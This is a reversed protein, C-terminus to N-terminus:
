SSINSSSVRSVSESVISLDFSNALVSRFDDGNGYNQYFMRADDISAFPKSMTEQKIKNKEYIRDFLSMSEKKVPENPVANQPKKNKEYIRDFLSM